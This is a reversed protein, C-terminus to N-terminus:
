PAPLVRWDRDARPVCQNALVSAFQGKRVQHSACLGGDREFILSFIAIYLPIKHVGQVGREKIFVREQSLRRIAERADVLYGIRAAAIDTPIRPDFSPARSSEPESSNSRFM